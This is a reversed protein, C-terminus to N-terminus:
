NYEEEWEIPEGCDECYNQGLEIDDNGCEPCEYGGVGKEMKITIKAM